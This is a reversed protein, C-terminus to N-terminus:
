LLEKICAFQNPTMTFIDGDENKLIVKGEQIKFDEISKFEFINFETEIYKETKSIVLEGEINISSLQYVREPEQDIKLLSDIM